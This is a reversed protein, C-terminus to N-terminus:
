SSQDAGSIPTGDALWQYTVSGSVGDTDSIETTLTNGVTPTGQIAVSGESNTRSVPDTGQSTASEDFGRDDVFTATVTIVTGFEAETLTLESSVEDEIQTGDAFWAYIITGNETASAIGNEDAVTATLTSGVLADGTVTISAPFAIASVDDTADSIHSENIGGDDTYMAQVTIPSGIQDDTLTFTSSNADTIAVGDAYWYYNINGSIGDPDSVTASLVEGSIATGSLSISGLTNPNNNSDTNCGTIAAAIACLAFTKLKM